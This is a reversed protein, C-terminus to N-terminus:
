ADTDDRGSTEKVCRKALMSRENNGALNEGTACALRRRIAPASKAGQFRRSTAIETAIVLSRM